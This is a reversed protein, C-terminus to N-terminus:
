ALLYIEQLKQCLAANDIDGSTLDGLHIGDIFAQMDKKLQEPLEVRENPPLLMLLHYVDRYHKRIHRSNGEEGEKRRASLECWAKAKFPILHKEDLVSLGDIVRRGSLLFDYYEDNLLIASLSSVDDAIHVPTLHADPLLQIDPTRSFLEIMKPYSSDEPNKFRYFQKQAEGTEIGNYNAEKIFDWFARGFEENINEVILVVDLDKTARFDEGIEDFIISCATGGILVYKDTHSQFFDRFKYLGQINVM